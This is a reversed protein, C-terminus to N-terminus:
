TCPSKELTALSSTDVGLLQHKPICVVDSFSPIAPDRYKVWVDDTDLQYFDLFEVGPLIESVAERLSDFSTQCDDCRIVHKRRHGDPGRPDFYELCGYVRCQAIIDLGSLCDHVAEEDGWEGLPLLDRVRAMDEQTVHDPVLLNDIAERAEDYEHKSFCDESCFHEMRMGEQRSIANPLGATSDYPDGSTCCPEGCEECLARCDPCVPIFGDDEPDEPDCNPLRGRTLKWYLEGDDPDRLVANCCDEAQCAWVEEDEPREWKPPEASFDQALADHHGYDDLGRTLIALGWQESFALPEGSPEGVCSPCGSRALFLKAEWGAMDGKGDPRVGHADWPEGCQACILDM